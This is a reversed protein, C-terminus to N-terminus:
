EAALKEKLSDFINKYEDLAQNKLVDIIKYVIDKRLLKLYDHKVDLWPMSSATIFYLISIEDESLADLTHSFIM